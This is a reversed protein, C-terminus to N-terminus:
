RRHRAYIQDRWAVLDSFEKSIEEDSWCQRTAPGLKVYANSVPTAPHVAAAMAIDAFSFEGLVYDGNKQLAERLQTLVQRLEERHQEFKKQSVGFERDVYGLGMGVLWLCAGRVATPVFPPLSEKQADRNRAIRHMVMGRGAALAKESLEIFKGLEETKNALFLKSSAGCGDAYRAIAASDCIRTDGDVLAPVTLEGSMSKMKWWLSPMGLMIVHESYKYPIKHHDLAWKAKETWPSYSIGILERATM